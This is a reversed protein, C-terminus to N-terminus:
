RRLSNQLSRIRAELQDNTATRSDFAINNNGPVNGANEVIANNKYDNQQQGIRKGNEFAANGLKGSLRGKALFYIDVLNDSLNKKMEPKSQIINQIEAQIEPMQFDATEPNTCLASVTNKLKTENRLNRIEQIEPESAAKAIAAITGIADENIARLIESNDPVAPENKNPTTEQQVPPTQAKQLNSNEASKKSFAKELEVYSKALDDPSKFGKKTALDAFAAKETATQAEVASGVAQPEVPKVQGGNPPTQTQNEQGTVQPTGNEKRTQEAVMDSQLGQIRKELDADSVDGLPQDPIETVPLSIPENSM